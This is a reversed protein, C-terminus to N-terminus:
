SQRKKRKGTSYYRCLSNVPCQRCLPKSPLCIKAGLDILGLNFEKSRGAPLLQNALKAVVTNRSPNQPLKGKLGFVRYIIRAINTDVVALDARHAFSLVAKASYEGVGYLSQLESLTSPVKGDYRKVIDKSLRILDKARYSLGLPRISETLKRLNAKSLKQPTPYKKVLMRYVSVVSKKVATQQLLKEAVLIRFPDRTKRWPFSRGNRRFWKLLKKGFLRSNFTNTRNSIMFEKISKALAEALPPPVADSVLRVQDSFNGGLRYSRKKSPFGQLLMAEYISLRRKGSPHVHIENHGYAVTYSPEDWRLRRFSRVAKRLRKPPVKIFKRSRPVMTWHNPHEPFREAVLRRSFYKPEKLGKIADAVTKGRVDGVPFIFDRLSYREKNWGIIFLRRRHQPLGFDYADLIKAQVYFGAKEFLEFLKEFDKSHKPKALGDVNEFIFFDLKYKENLKRLIRSYRYPLLRREDKEDREAKNGNSFYQCPPGGVIGVPRANRRLNEVDSIISAWVRRSSLDTRKAVQNDPRNLNYTNVAAEDKDYALLLSFGQLEFGLDLGGAGCFLSVIKL